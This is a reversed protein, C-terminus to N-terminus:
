VQPMNGLEAQLDLPEDSPNLVQDAPEPTAQRISLELSGLKMDVLLLMANVNQGVQLCGPTPNLTHPRPSM